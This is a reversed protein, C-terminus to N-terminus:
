LIAICVDAISPIIAAKVAWKDVNIGVQVLEYVTLSNIIIVKVCGPSSKCTFCELIKNDVFNIVQFTLSMTAM